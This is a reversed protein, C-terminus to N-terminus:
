IEVPFFTQIPFTVHAKTDKELVPSIRVHHYPGFKQGDCLVTFSANPATCSIDVSYVHQKPETVLIPMKTPRNLAKPHLTANMELFPAAPNAMFCGDGKRPVNAIDITNYELGEDCGSESQNGGLDMRVFKITLEPPNFMFTKEKLVDDVKKELAAGGNAGNAGNASTPSETQKAENKARWEAVAVAQGIEVRGVFPIMEDCMPMPANVAPTSNTTTAALTMSSAATATPSASSSASASTPTSPVTPGSNSKSEKGDEKWGQLMYVNVPYTHQAERVYQEHLNAVFDSAPYAEYDQKKPEHDFPLPWPTLVNNARMPAYIHRNYWSDHRALFAALENKELPSLFLKLRIGSFYENRSQRLLLYACLMQHLLADGGAVVVRVETDLESAAPLPLVVGNMADDESPLDQQSAVRRLTMASSAAIGAAPATSQSSFRSLLAELLGYAPTTPFQTSKICMMRMETATLIEYHLETRLEKHALPLLPPLYLPPTSLPVAKGEAGKGALAKLEVRLASLAQKRQPAATEMDKLEAVSDVYKNYLTAVSEASLDTCAKLEEKELLGDTKLATMVVALQQKPTLLTTGKNDSRGRVRHRGKEPVYVESQLITMIRLTNAADKETFYYVGNRRDSSAATEEIAVKGEDLLRQHCISGPALVEAKMMNLVHMTLSGLPQPWLYFQVMAQSTRRLLLSDTAPGQALLFKYLHLLALLTTEALKPNMKMQQSLTLLKTLLDTLVLALKGDQKCLKQLQAYFNAYECGGLEGDDLLTPFAVVDNLKPLEKMSILRSAGLILPAILDPDPSAPDMKASLTRIIENAAPHDRAMKDSWSKLQKKVGESHNFRLSTTIFAVTNLLSDLPIPPEKNKELGKILQKLVEELFKTAEPAETAGGSWFSHFEDFRVAGGSHSASALVSAADVGMMKKVKDRNSM